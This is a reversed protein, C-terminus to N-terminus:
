EQETPTIDTPNLLIPAPSSVEVPAVYDPAGVLARFGNDKVLDIINTAIFDAKSEQNHQRNLMVITKDQPASDIIAPNTTIVIDAKDWIETDTKPFLYTRVLPRIKSLFFLTPSISPNQEKSFILIDVYPDFTSTFERLHLDLGRYLTPAQGFIESLYDVYLFRNFAEDATISEKKKRFAMHDVPAVGNEDLQYETPSIDEPLEENLYNVEDVTDKFEYHNRLNYTDFPMSIGDEGFESAYYRDFQLWKARLVEDIDIALIKKTM